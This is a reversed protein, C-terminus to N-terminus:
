NIEEEKRHLKAKHLAIVIKRVVLIGLLLVVAQILIFIPLIVIPKKAQPIVPTDGGMNGTDIVPPAAVFAEFETPVEISNGNSDEYTIILTGKGQANEINPTLEIEHTAGTGAEVNGIFLTQQTPTFDTSEVRATVNNLVSKGMNYFDFSMNTPTFATPPEWTGVIINSVTPRSNEMVSLNLVQSITLGTSIQNELKQMGDYEYEFDIKLPYAKTVCDAKVRLEIDKHITEGPKISSVYFSNSGKTVSFVNEESSLTVKINKASISNHTNFIDCSFVFTKGAKIDETDTKFDSIILKPVGVSEKEPNSVNLVYVKSIETPAYVKGDMDKYNFQLDIQNLGEVVQKSVTFHMTIKKTQGAKLSKILKYPEANKPSFTTATLNTPIIKIEKLDIESKNQIQFSLTVNGGATPVSPNQTVNSIVLDPTIGETSKVTVPIYINTTESDYAVGEANKFTTKITLTKVGGTANQSVKVPLTIYKSTGNALDGIIKKESTYGPIIGDAAFGEVTIYTGYATMAGQNRATFSIEFSDGPMLGKDFTVNDYAISPNSKQEKVKVIIPTALTTTYLASNNSNLATFSVFLKYTGIKASENVKLTFNLYSTASNIQKVSNSTDSSLTIKSTLEFPMGNLDLSMYPNNILQYEGVAKVPIKLTLVAGPTAIYPDIDESIIVSGQRPEPTPDDGTAKVIGVPNGGNMGILMVLALVGVLIRKFKKM